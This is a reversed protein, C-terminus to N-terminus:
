KAVAMGPLHVEEGGKLVINYKPDADELLSRIPIIQKTEKGTERDTRIVEIDGTATTAPGGAHALASLLTTREIAQFEYPRDVAGTVKVLYSHYEAPTVRVTPDVLLQAHKYAEAIVKEVAEPLLGEVHVHDKLMPLSIDGQSSITVRKTLDDEGEVAVDIVDGRGLPLIPLDGQAVAFRHCLACLVFAIALKGLRM